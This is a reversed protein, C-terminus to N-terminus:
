RAAPIVLPLVRVSRQDGASHNTIRGALGVSQVPLDLVRYFHIDDAPLHHVCIPIDEYTIINFEM